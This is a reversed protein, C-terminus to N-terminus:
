NTDRHHDQRLDRGLVGLNNILIVLFGMSGVCYTTFQKDNSNRTSTNSLKIICQTEYQHGFNLRTIKKRIIVHAIM